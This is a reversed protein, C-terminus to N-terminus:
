PKINIHLKNKSTINDYVIHMVTSFLIILRGLFKSAKDIGSM